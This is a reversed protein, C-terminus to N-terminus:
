VKIEEEKNGDIIKGKKLEGDEFEGVIKQGNPYIITGPGHFKGLKFWGEYVTKDVKKLIGFGHPKVGDKPSTTTQGEYISKDPFLLSKKFFRTKIKRIFNKFM